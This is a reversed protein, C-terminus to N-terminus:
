SAGEVPPAVPGAPTAPAIPEPPALPSSAAPAPTQGEVTAVATRLRELLSDIEAGAAAAAAPAVAEVVPAAEPFLDDAVKVGAHELVKVIAGVFHQVESSNPLDAPPLVQGLKRIDEILSV